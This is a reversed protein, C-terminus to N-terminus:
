DETQVDAGDTELQGSEAFRGIAGNEFREAGGIWQKSHGREVPM